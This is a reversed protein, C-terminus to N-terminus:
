NHPNKVPAYRVDNYATSGVLWWTRTGTTHTRTHIPTPWVQEVNVKEEGGGGRGGGGEAEEAKQQGWIPPLKSEIKGRM